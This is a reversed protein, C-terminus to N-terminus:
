SREKRDLFGDYSFNEKANRKCAEKEQEIYESIMRSMARSFEDIKSDADRMYCLGFALTSFVKAIGPLLEDYIVSKSVEMALHSHRKELPVEVRIGM